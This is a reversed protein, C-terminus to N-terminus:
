STPSRRNSSSQLCPVPMVLVLPTRRAHLVLEREREGGDGCRLRPLTAIRGAQKFDSM